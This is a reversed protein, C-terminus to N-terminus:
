VYGFLGRVSVEGAYVAEVTGDLKQVLLEGKDNMGLATGQYEGKPDLVQVRNGLNVLRSEYDSLIFGLSGEECFDDYLREFQYLVEALLEEREIRKGTENLLSGAYELGECAFKTQHVNIGVGIVIHGIKGAKMQMQTLIGCVKRGNMVIDNPWKIQPKCDYIAEIGKAVALAMVLTLMSAQDAKFDPKLLLSFYLNGGAESLWTRGRRGKGALQRDAIIVAGNELQEAMEDADDNTSSTEEM